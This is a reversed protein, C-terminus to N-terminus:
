GHLLRGLDSYVLKSSFFLKKQRTSRDAPTQFVTTMPKNSRKDFEEHELREKPFIEEFWSKCEDYNERRGRLECDCYWVIDGPNNVSGKEIVFLDDTKYNLCL